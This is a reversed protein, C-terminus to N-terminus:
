GLSGARIIGRRELAQRARRAILRWRGALYIASPDDPDSWSGVGLLHYTCSTVRLKRRPPPGPVCRGVDEDYPGGDFTARMWGSPPPDERAFVDDMATLTSGDRPPPSEPPRANPFTVRPSTGVSTPLLSDDQQRAAHHGAAVTSGV